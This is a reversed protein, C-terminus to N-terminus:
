ALPGAGSTDHAQARSTEDRALTRDGAPSVIADLRFRYGVAAARSGPHRPVRARPKPGRRVTGSRASTRRQHQSSIGAYCTAM